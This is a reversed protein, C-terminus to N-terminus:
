AANLGRGLGSSLVNWVKSTVTGTDERFLVLMLLGGSVITGVVKAGTQLRAIKKDADIRMRETKAKYEEIELEKRKLDAESEMEEAQRLLAALNKVEKLSQDYSETPGKRVDEWRDLLEDNVQESSIM